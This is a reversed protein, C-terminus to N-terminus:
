PLKFDNRWGNRLKFRAKEVLSMRAQPKYDPETDESM